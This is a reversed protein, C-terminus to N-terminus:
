DLGAQQAAFTVAVQSIKFFYDLDILDYTDGGNQDFHPNDFPDHESFVVSPVGIEWLAYMDSNEGMCDRTTKLQSYHAATAELADGIAQFDYNGTSFGGSCSFVDFEHGGITPQCTGNSACNWGSQENDIGAVLNFGQQAALGQIYKAYVRAGELGPTSWEEYDAAVFRVTYKMVGKYPALLRATELLMSMGTMDDDVAPNATEQGPIGMSDYHVIIIVSDKSQGELVAEVNHGNTEGIRHKTPYAMETVPIGLNQFYQMFYARFQAKSAPNYRNTISFTQGAVTVPLYGTLEQLTQNLHTQDVSDFIQQYIDGANAQAFPMILLSLVGLYGFCREM